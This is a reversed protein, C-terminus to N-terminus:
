RKNMEKNLREGQIGSKVDYNYDPRTPSRVPSTQDIIRRPDRGVVEDVARDADARTQEATPKPLVVPKRQKREIQLDSTAPPPAQAAVALPLATVLLAFSLIVTSKM